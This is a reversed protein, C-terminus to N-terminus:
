KRVVYLKELSRKNNMNCTHELSWIEKFSEPMWYESIIVLNNRAMKYTWNYFREYHFEDGYGTTFRYPPDCYIVAKKIDIDMFDCCSFHIGDLSPRQQILNRIGENAYDRSKKDRGYGGFWKAGYSACFGVLGIYWDEHCDPYQRVFQYEEESISEPLEGDDQLHKLLAILKPHIDSGMKIPCEIKDIINAGGVFPEVYTRYKTNKLCNQLIPVLIYSLRTKSGLYKM